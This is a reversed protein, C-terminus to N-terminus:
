AEFLQPGSEQGATQSVLAAQLFLIGTAGVAVRLRYNMGDRAACILERVLVPSALVM